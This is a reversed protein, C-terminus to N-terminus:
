LLIMEQDPPMQKEVSKLTLKHKYMYTIIAAHITNNREHTYM